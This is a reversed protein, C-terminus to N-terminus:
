ILTRLFTRKKSVPLTGIQELESEMDFTDTRGVCIPCNQQVPPKDYNWHQPMTRPENQNSYPPPYFPYNFNSMM